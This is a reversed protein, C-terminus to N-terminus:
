QDNWTSCADHLVRLEALLRRGATTPQGRDEVTSLGQQNTALVEARRRRFHPTQSIPHGGALLRAHMAAVPIFAHAALLVGSLPRLDPRVPSATWERRGNKLVPDLWMLPNLRGHQTEHVIAEALTLPDPHLTMWAIGPAEMYSASLHMEAEFGVPVLRSLAIPLERWWEPLAVRILELADFLARGWDAATAGGLSVANGAKDPHDELM